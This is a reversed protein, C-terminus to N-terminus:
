AELEWSFSGWSVGLVLTISSPVFPVPSPPPSSENPQCTMTGCRLGLWNWLKPRGRPTKAAAEM